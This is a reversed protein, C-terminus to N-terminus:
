SVPFCIIHRSLKSFFMEMRCKRKFVVLFFVGVQQDVGVADIGNHM